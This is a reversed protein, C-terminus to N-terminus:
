GGGLIRRAASAGSFRHGRSHLQQVRITHATPQLRRNPAGMCRCGIVLVWSGDVPLWLGTGIQAHSASYWLGQKLSMAKGPMNNQVAFCTQSIQTGHHRAQNNCLQGCSNLYRQRPLTWGQGASVLRSSLHTNYKFICWRDLIPCNGCLDQYHQHHLHMSKGTSGLNGPSNVGCSGQGNILWRVPLCRVLRSILPVGLSRQASPAFAAGHPTACRLGLTRLVRPNGSSQASLRLRPRALSSGVGQELTDRAEIPSIRADALTEGIPLM